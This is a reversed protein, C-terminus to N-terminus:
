CGGDGVLYVINEHTWGNATNASSVAERRFMADYNPFTGACKANAGDNTGTM